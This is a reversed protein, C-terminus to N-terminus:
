QMEDGMYFGSGTYAWDSNEHHLTLHPDMNLVMLAARTEPDTIEHDLPYETGVNFNQGPFAPLGELNFSSYMQFNGQTPPQMMNSVYSTNGVGGGFQEKQVIFSHSSMNPLTEPLESSISSVNQDQTPFLSDLYRKARRELIVQMHTKVIEVSRSLTPMRVATKQMIDLFFKLDLKEGPIDSEPLSGNDEQRQFHLVAITAGIYTSYCNLYTIHSYGFTTTILGLLDHIAATATICILYSRSVAPNEFETSSLIFPRHLLILTTQYLLNLSVIHIPPSLRPLRKVNLRLVDPLEQWWIQIESCIRVFASNKMSQVEIRNRIPKYLNMPGTTQQSEEAVPSSGYIELMITGLITSIRCLATFCSIVYGKQPIYPMMSSGEYQFESGYYPEWPDNETFDDV